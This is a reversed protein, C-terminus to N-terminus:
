EKRYLPSQQVRRGLGLHAVAGFSPNSPSSASGLPSVQYLPTPFDPFITGLLDLLFGLFSSKEGYRQPLERFPFSSPSLFLPPAGSGLPGADLEPSFEPGFPRTACLPLFGCLSSCLSWRWLVGEAFLLRERVTPTLGYRYSLISPPLPSWLSSFLLSLLPALLHTNRGGLPSSHPKDRPVRRITGM